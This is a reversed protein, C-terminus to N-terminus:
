RHSGSGRFIDIDLPPPRLVLHKVGEEASGGMVGLVKEDELQFFCAYWRISETSAVPEPNRGVERIARELGEQKVHTKTRVALHCTLRKLGLAKQVKGINLGDRHTSDRQLDLYGFLKM